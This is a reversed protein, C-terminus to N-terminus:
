FSRVKSCCFGIEALGQNLATHFGSDELMSLKFPSSYKNEISFDLQKDIM